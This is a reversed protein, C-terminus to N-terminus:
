LLGCPSFNYNVRLNINVQYTSSHLNSKGNVDFFIQQNKRCRWWILLGIVSILLFVAGFSTGLAIALRRSKNGSSSEGILAFLTDSFSCKHRLILMRSSPNHHVTNTLIYRFNEDKGPKLGSAALARTAM